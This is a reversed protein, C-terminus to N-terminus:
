TKRMLISKRLIRQSPVQPHMLVANKLMVSGILLKSGLKTTAYLEESIKNKSKLDKLFNVVRGEEKLVPHKENKRKPELKKFQPLKLIDDLKRNYSETSMLCMGIGKDFPVALLKHEKLYRHTM